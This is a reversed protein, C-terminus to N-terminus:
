AASARAATPAASCVSPALACFVVSASISFSARLSHRRQGSQRVRGVSSGSSCMLSFSVHALLCQCEVELREFVLLRPRRRGALRVALCRGLVRARGFPRGHVLRLDRELVLDHWARGDGRHHALAVLHHRRERLGPLPGVGRLLRDLACPPARDLDGALLVECERAIAVSGVGRELRFALVPLPAGLVHALDDVPRHPPADDRHGLELRQHVGGRLLGQM